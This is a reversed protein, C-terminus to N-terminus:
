VRLITPLTLHTYSVPPQIDVSARGPWAAGSPDVIPVSAPANTIPHRDAPLAVAMLLGGVRSMDGSSAGLADHAGVHSADHSVDHGLNEERVVDHGLGDPWM